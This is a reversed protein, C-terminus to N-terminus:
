LLSCIRKVAKGIKEKTKEIISFAVKRDQTTDSSDPTKQLSRAVLQTKRIFKRLASDNRELLRRTLKDEMIKLELIKGRIPRLDKMTPCRRDDGKMPSHVTFKRLRRKRDAESIIRQKLRIAKNYRKMLRLRRTLIRRRKCIRRRRLVIKKLSRNYMEKVTAKFNELYADMNSYDYTGKIEEQRLLKALKFYGGAQTLHRLRGSRQNYDEKHRSLTSIPFFPMRISREIAIALNRERNKVLSIAYGRPAIADNHIMRGVRGCRKLYDMSNLPFDFMIVADANFDLGRSALDSCVLIGESGKLFEEYSRRRKMIPVKGHLSTAPLGADTLIYEVARCSNINNCFVLVKRCRRVDEYKLLNVLELGKDKGKLYRFEHSVGRNPRDVWATDVLQHCRTLRELYKENVKRTNNPVGKMNPVKALARQVKEFHLLYKSSAAVQILRYPQKIVDLVKSLDPWFGENLMTDAEDIILFQLQHLKVHNLMEMLREPTAVVIDVLRKMHDRQRGKYSGGAVSESSIRVVHSLGKLVDLTQDALERSPVLILARPANPYRLKLKEHCKLKQIVPLLYALTKGSAANSAILVDGEVNLLQNIAMRQIETPYIELNSHETRNITDLLKKRIWAVAAQSVDTTLGLDQWSQVYPELGDRVVRNSKFEFKPMTDHHQWTFGKPDAMREPFLGVAYQQESEELDGDLVDLDKSLPQDSTLREPLAFVRFGHKRVCPTTNNGLLKRPTVLNSPLAKLSSNTNRRAVPNYHIISCKGSKEIHAILQDGLRRLEADTMEAPNTSSFSDDLFPTLDEGELLNLYNDRETMIQGCPESDSWTQSSDYEYDSDEDTTVDELDKSAETAKTVNHSIDGDGTEEMKTLLETIKSYVQDDNLSGELKGLLSHFTLKYIDEPIQINEHMTSRKIVKAYLDDLEVLTMRKLIAALKYKRIAEMTEDGEDMNPPEINHEKLIDYVDAYNSLHLLIAETIPRTRRSNLVVCKKREDGVHADMVTCRRTDIYAAVSDFEEVTFVMSAIEDSGVGDEKVVDKTNHEDGPEADSSGSIVEDTIELGRETMEENLTENNDQAGSDDADMGVDVNAIDPNIRMSAIFCLKAVTNFPLMAYQAFDQETKIPKFEPLALLVASLLATLDHKEYSLLLKLLGSCRDNPLNGYIDANSELNDHYFDLLTNFASRVKDITITDGIDRAWQISEHGRARAAVMLSMDGPLGRFLENFRELHKNIVMVSRNMQKVYDTERINLKEPKLHEKDERHERKSRYEELWGSLTNRKIEDEDPQTTSKNSDASDLFNDYVDPQQEDSVSEHGWLVRLMVSQFVSLLSRRDLQKLVSRSRQKVYDTSLYHKHLRIIDVLEESKLQTLDLAVKHYEVDHKGQNLVWPCCLWDIQGDLFAGHGWLYKYLEQRVKLPTFLIVYSAALDSTYLVQLERDLAIQPEMVEVVKFNGVLPAMFERLIRQACEPVKIASAHFAEVADVLRQKIENEFVSGFYGVFHSM